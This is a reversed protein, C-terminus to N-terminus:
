SFRANERAKSTMWKENYVNEFINSINNYFGEYVTKHSKPEKEDIDTMLWNLFEMILDNYNGDERYSFVVDCKQLLDNELAETKDIPKVAEDLAKNIDNSETMPYKRKLYKVINQEIHHNIIKIQEKPLRHKEVLLVINRLIGESCCVKTQEYSLQDSAM